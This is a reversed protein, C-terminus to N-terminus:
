ELKTMPSYVFFIIRFFVVKEVDKRELHFYVLMPRSKAKSGDQTSCPDYEGVAYTIIKEVTTMFM